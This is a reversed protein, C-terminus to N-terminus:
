FLWDPNDFGGYEQIAGYIHQVAATNNVRLGCVGNKLIRKSYESGRKVQTKRLASEPLQLLNLWYREIARIEDPKDTHCHIYVTMAHDQIQMEERLFRSFLRMMNPDSNVFYISNRIKGGEAWYLMCGALHLPRMARAASRGEEQYGIRLRFHRERNQSAGKNQAGFRRQKHKLADIQDQTLPLSRVWISATGKSVGLMRAIEGVSKGQQRLRLARERLERKMIFERM